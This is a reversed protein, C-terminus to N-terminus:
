SAPPGPHMRGYYHGAGVALCVLRNPVRDSGYGYMSIACLAAAHTKGPRVWGSAQEIRAVGCGYAAAAAMEAKLEATALPREKLPILEGVLSRIDAATQTRPDLAGSWVHARRIVDITLRFNERSASLWRHDPMPLHDIRPMVLPVYRSRWAM